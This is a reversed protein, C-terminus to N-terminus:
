RRGGARRRRPAAQEQEELWEEVALPQHRQRMKLLGLAEDGIRPFHQRLGELLRELFRGPDGDRRNLSLWLSQWHAPLRECFEVALSSKGFGAPACVLLLRGDMGEELRECLRPRLVHGAPLPPRFFRGEGASVPFSALAPSSSLDTVPPTSM